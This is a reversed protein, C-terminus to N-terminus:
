GYTRPLEDDEELWKAAARDTAESARQIQLKEFSLFDSVGDKKTNKENKLEKDNKNPAWQNDASQGDNALPNGEAKGETLSQSQYYDWNCITILRNHKTSHNTLFGMKEFRLLATRIKKISIRKGVKERISALSTIM